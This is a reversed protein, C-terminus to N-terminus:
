SMIWKDKYVKKSKLSWNEFDSARGTIEYVYVELPQGYTHWVYKRTVTESESIDFVSRGFDIDTSINESKVITAWLNTHSTQAVSTKLPASGEGSPKVFLATRRPGDIPTFDNIGKGHDGTIIITADDYVNMEKMKQLYINIIKFSNKLAVDISYNHPNSVRNWDDDYVVGHCGYVHIFNFVKNDKFVFDNTSVKHYVDRTDDTIAKKNDKGYQKVHNNCTKSDVNGCLSKMLHPVGRYLSMQLMGRVLGKKSTVEYDVLPTTNSIYEPLKTNTDYSYYQATHINIEYGKEALLKLTQNEKYAKKMYEKRSLDESYEVNTLMHTIAPYTHGFMAIHEKFWTFGTLEDFVSSDRSYAGEAYTEDFRDIVFYFINKDKSLNTLNDATLISSESANIEAKKSSSYFVGKTSISVSVVSLLQTASTIVTALIAITKIIGKKDRLLAIIVSALIVVAWLFLNLIATGVSTAVGFDDGALYNMSGNLYTGQVFFMFSSSVVLAVGVRYLKDPLFLLGFFIFVILGFMFLLMLPLFDGLSFIFEEINKGFIEFPISVFVMFAPMFAVLLTFWIRKKVLDKTLYSKREKKVLNKKEM